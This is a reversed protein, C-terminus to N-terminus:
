ECESGLINFRMIFLSNFIIKSHNHAFRRERFTLLVSNIIKRGGDFGRLSRMTRLSFWVFINSDVFILYRPTIKSLRSVQFCWIVSSQLFSLLATPKNYLIFFKLVLNTRRDSYKEM